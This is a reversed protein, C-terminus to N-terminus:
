RHVNELEDIVQEVKQKLAAVDTAQGAFRAADCADFVERAAAPLGREEVIAGTIGSAPINLRNGLYDQLARQVHETTTAGALQKRANRAARSRRAYAVDGALRDQQRKWSLAGAFGLVPLLNLAWFVPTGFFVPPPVAGLKGKLYVIDQGLKESSRARQTGTVIASHGATGPKITVPLPGQTITKYAKAVPDFYSLRVAPIAKVAADKAILVQQFVREGTTNLEGSTTKSSPDYAKFNDLGTLGLAPVTTINGNGTIKITVTIPDGVAVETPKATYELNWQGIAGAFGAPRGEAPLPQVEIPVADLTVPVERVETRGFFDDFFPNNFPNNGRKQSTLQAKIVCPGFNLTGARTPSIAGEIVYLNYAVGNITQPGSKVNGNYKYGLGDGEASFGSIGRMPVNGRAFLIVDLPATQGLYLQQSNLRVKAFLTDQMGAQAGPKGVTLRIPETKYIKGAVNVDLAPITFEGTRTPTVQYTLSVSQSMAGNVLSFQSNVSPGAFNLGDIKPIGVQPNSHSGNVSLTLTFAEGFAVHSQDVTASVSVDAFSRITLLLSLIFVAVRM